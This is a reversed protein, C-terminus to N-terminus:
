VLIRDPGASRAAADIGVCLSRERLDATQDCLSLYRSRFLERKLFHLATRWVAAVIHREAIQSRCKGKRRALDSIIAATQIKLGADAGDCESAAAYLYLALDECRKGRLHDNQPLCCICREGGLDCHVASVIIVVFVVNVIVIM